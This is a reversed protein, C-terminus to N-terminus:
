EEKITRNLLAVVASNPDLGEYIIKYVQECIPMEIQYRKALLYAEKAADIGEIVQNIERRATEQDKGAGLALGFRRNRSKSDTCTLVLDGMGALGMFTEKNAGFTEGLRALEVLGRTILAARANAGFGMGDSIGVAIALVNKVAGSVQVGVMDSCHYPRFTDSHLYKILDGIFDDDNGAITVATPLNAAVEVAFTPGSIVARSINGCEEEVLKSIVVYKDIFGKTAWSIRTNETFYVKATRLTAEFAHSPVVFLLDDSARVATKLDSYVAINDPFPVDPLYRENIRDKALSAALEVDFEWLHVKLGNKALLIALASGWSGAGLVTVNAQM